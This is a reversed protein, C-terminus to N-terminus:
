FKCYKQIEEKTVGMDILYQAVKGITKIFNISLASYKDKEEQPTDKKEIYEFMNQLKINM